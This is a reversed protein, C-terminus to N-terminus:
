KVHYHILIEDHAIHNIFEKTIEVESDKFPNIKKNYDNMINYKETTSEM